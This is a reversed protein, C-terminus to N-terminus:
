VDGRSKKTTSALRLGALLMDSSKSLCEGHDISVAAPSNTGAFETRQQTQLYPRRDHLHM